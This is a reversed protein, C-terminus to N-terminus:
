TDFKLEKFEPVSNIVSVESPDNNFNTPNFKGANAKTHRLLGLSKM